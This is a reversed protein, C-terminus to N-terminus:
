SGTVYRLVAEFTRTKTEGIYDIAVKYDNSLIPSQDACLVVSTAGGSHVKFNPVSEAGGGLVVVKHDEIGVVFYPSPLTALGLFTMKYCTGKTIELV